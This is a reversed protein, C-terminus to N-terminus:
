LLDTVHHPCPRGGSLVEEIIRAIHATTKDTPDQALSDQAVVRAEGPKGSFLLALALNSLLGADGPRTEIGRQCFLIAEQPRGLEMAAISAERAVDPQDPNIRHARSLWTLSHECQGLRQYTKGLLLMASWNQPNIRVVEIFRPIAKKLRRRELWKLPGPPQNDLVILSNILRCGEEYLEAHRLRDQDSIPATRGIYM